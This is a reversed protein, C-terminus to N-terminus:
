ISRQEDSGRREPNGRADPRTSNNGLWFRIIRGWERQGRTIWSHIAADIAMKKRIRM